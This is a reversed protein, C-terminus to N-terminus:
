GIVKAIPPIEGDNALVEKRADILNRDSKDTAKSLEDGLVVTPEPTPMTTVGKNADIKKKGTQIGKVVSDFSKTLVVGFFGALKPFMSVIWGIVRTFIPILAPVFFMLAIIGGIGFTAVSWRWVRKVINRNREEEYLAGLHLLKEQKENLETALRDRDLILQQVEHFNNTLAQRAARNDALLAEVDIRTLPLGELQQDWMLLTKALDTPKNTPAYRLSEFAGTTFQRSKEAVEDGNKEVETRTKQISRANGGCGSLLAVCLCLPFLLRM